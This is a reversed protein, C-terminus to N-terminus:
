GVHEGGVDTFVARGEGSGSALVGLRVSGFGPSLDPDLLRAAGAGVTVTDASTRATFRYSRGDTEVALGVPEEASLSVAEVTILDAARRYLIARREGDARALVLDYHHEPGTYATIGASAGDPLVDVTARFAADHEQQRLFVASVEGHEDLTRPTVPLEIRGGDDIRLGEVPFHRTSWGALWPSGGSSRGPSRPLAAAPMDLEVTGEHGIVPWGDRWEVPALFTERGLLSPGMPVPRTALFLAWWTGDPAEVLEAHGARQIPHGQRHRHTLVPNHPAPEWPGWASRSRACTQMHGQETGGEASFLYYWDGIKYLHPGEIDNSCFGTVGETIARPRAVLRGTMPDIEAQVVPGHGAPNGFDLTRRTYYCTGDAFLLSPDFAEADVWAAESWQGAPDEARVVFNGVKSGGWSLGAQRWSPDPEAPAMNTCTLYFTGESYRVTPAFLLSPDFAEADVWAADSWEGAPDDTRVVFNGVKPGFWSLGKQAWDSDPRAPAMNTCAVYFTGEHHRLTPAFLLFPGDEGDPRYQEPRSVAHGILEWHVLDTSHHIPIGPWYEFTSTALFFDDGVRCVSPDPAVGRVVPNAFTTM